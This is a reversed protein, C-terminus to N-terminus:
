PRGMSSAVIIAAEKADIGRKANQEDCLKEAQDLDHGWYWRQQGPRTGMPFHGPEKEFVISVGYGHEADYTGPGVYYVWRRTEFLKDLHEEAIREKRTSM